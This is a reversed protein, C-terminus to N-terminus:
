LGGAKRAHYTAATPTIGLAEALEDRPVVVGFLRMQHNWGACKTNCFRRKRWQHSVENPRRTMTAACAPAACVKSVPMGASASRSAGSCDADCFVRRAWGASREGVRRKMKAKCHHCQKSVPLEMKLADGACRKGCFRRKAYETTSGGPRPKIWRSCQRCKKPTM